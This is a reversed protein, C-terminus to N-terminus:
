QMVTFWVWLVAYILPQHAMYIILSHRGLFAFVPVRPSKLYRLFGHKKAIRYLFFGTLYLFFWPFLPFYDTSSFDEHPFGLFATLYNRYLFAPLTCLTKGFLILKGRRVTKFLFFLAFSLLACLPAPLKETARGVPVCLLMSTGILCLVGFLIRSDPMFVMTVLSVVASAGFVTLGRKVPHHGLAHCFGSLLIFTHCISQQWLEAGFSRYWPAVVGFLYVLDWMAHYAIMSLLTIGRLSDLAHLRRDSAPIQNLSIM